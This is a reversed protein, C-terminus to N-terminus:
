KPTGGGLINYTLDYLAALTKGRRGLGGELSIQGGESRDM